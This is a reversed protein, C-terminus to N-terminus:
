LASMSVRGTLWNVRLEYVTKQSGMKITAGTSSGNPFFRIGASQASGREGDASTVAIDISPDLRLDPRGDDFRILRHVPEIQVVREEGRAMATARLDRLRSATMMAANKVKLGPSPNRFAFSIAGAAVVAVSMVALIEVLTFGAEKPRRARPPILSAAPIM